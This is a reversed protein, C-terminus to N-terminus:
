GVIRAFQDQPDFEVVVETGPCVSPHDCRDVWFGIREGDLEVYAKKLGMPKEVPGIIAVTKM